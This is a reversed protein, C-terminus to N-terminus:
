ATGDLAAYITRVYATGRDLSIVGPAMKNMVYAITLRRDLDNVVLAGGFGTWWCVRGSHGAFAPHGLAFGTGFRVPTGLVQDAGDAQVDFIRAITADGLLGRGGHSIVSQARAVSRANGHGNMAGLEARRWATGRVAALDMVPNGLTRVTLSDPPLSGLASPAAPPVLVAIREDVAAPTGIFFDADLPEAIETHFFAGLSQGTLRFVLEGVLHGQNMAHYGSATGPEWWPEQGALLDTAARTDYIDELSVRQQWGALGSTHGLLQRVLVGDKGAAAFEPWYKAVPADPDLEGREVLLLAALATMTKTVSFVNVVTDREWPTGTEVDAVGGWLDVLVEGDAIACVSLGGESGDALAADLQARLPEFRDQCEGRVTM